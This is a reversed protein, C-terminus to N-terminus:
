SQNIFALIRNARADWTYYLRSKEQARRGFSELRESELNLAKELTETLSAEDDPHFFLANTDDLVDRVSPLDSAIITTGSAMYEFMKLPSMAFAYHPTNPFPMALVNAARYYLALQERPGYPICFSRESPKRGEIAEFEKVTGGVICLHIEPHHIRLSEVARDLDGIGKRNGYTSFNGGYAVVFSDQPIGLQERAQSRTLPLNFEVLDVADPIVITKADPLVEKVRAELARTLCVFGAIGNLSMVDERSPMSHIEYYVRSSPIQLLQKALYADRVYMVRSPASRSFYRGLSRMFTWRELFFTVRQFMRPVRVGFDIVKLRVVSFQRDIIGYHEFASKRITPDGMDSVVLEVSAGSGVLAQCTKAIQYGHAWGTPFRINAIYQIQM